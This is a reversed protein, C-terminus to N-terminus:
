CSYLYELGPLDAFFGRRDPLLAECLDYSEGGFSYNRCFHSKDFSIRRINLKLVLSVKKPKKKGRSFHVFLEFVVSNLLGLILLYLM